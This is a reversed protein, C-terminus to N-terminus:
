CNGDHEGDENDWLCDPCIHLGCSCTKVVTGCMPCYKELEMM